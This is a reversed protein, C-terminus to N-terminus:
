PGAMVFVPNQPAPSGNSGLAAAQPAPIQLEMADDLTSIIAVNGADCNGVYVRSSDASAVISLRAPNAGCQPSVTVTGLAVTGKPSGDSATIITVQSTVQATPGSGSITASSIYARSGDLLPAVSVPNAVPLVVASLADSSVDLFTVANAAPNAVYVRNLTPDYVMFNAGAGVSVSNVVMESATDIASVMGSGQDLVYVRASDSRAAVSIPSIWSSNGIPPNVSRDSTNIITVSGGSGGSGRNAVYLKRADPTEAMAVPATGVAVQYAVENTSTLIEDVQNNAVDAVFVADSETTAVFVPSAQASGSPLTVTGVPSPRSGSFISVTGDGSNAVFVGAGNAVFVAHVPMVGVVSQSVATDGSVDISTSAGPNNAGNGSIVLAIHSFAPNPPNPAIPTAVPRYTQGCSTCIVMLLVVAAARAGTMSVETALDM